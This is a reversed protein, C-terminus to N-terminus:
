ASVRALTEPKTLHTRKWEHLGERMYEPDIDLAMCVNEFSYLWRRDRANIWEEAERFLRQGRRRPANVHHMYDDVAQKLIMFGMLKEGELFPKRKLADYYQVPLVIDPQFAAPLPEEVTNAAAKNFVATAALLRTGLFAAFARALRKLRLTAAPSRLATVESSMSPMVALFSGDCTLKKRCIQGKAGFFLCPGFRAGSGSSARHSWEADISELLLVEFELLLPHRLRM